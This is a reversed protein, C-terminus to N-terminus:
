KVSTFLRGRLKKVGGNAFFRLMPLEVYVHVYHATILCAAINIIFYVNPSVIHMALFITQIITILPVHLLYLTYSSDGMKVALEPAKFTGSKEAMLFCLVLVFSPLGWEYVRLLSSTAKQTNGEHAIADDFGFFVGSFLLLISAALLIVSLVPSFKVPSLFIWACVCGFLFEIMIPNTFFVLRADQFKYVMGLLVLMSIIIFSLASAKRPNIWIAVSFVIYFFFEFSLTWSVTLIGVGFHNKNLIPIITLTKIVSAYSLLENHCVYWIVFGALSILWYLPIIRRCRKIFFGSVSKERGKYTIITMVAGSLVFFIDVGIAGFDNSYLMHFVSVRGQATNFVHTFLVLFAAVARLVQLSILKSSYM